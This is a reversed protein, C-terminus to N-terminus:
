AVCEAEERTASATTDYDDKNWQAVRATGAADPRKTRADRM